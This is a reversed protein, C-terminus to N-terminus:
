ECFGPPAPSDLPHLAIAKYLSGMDDEDTLRRRASELEHRQKGRAVRALAETRSSIGLRELLQGQSVVDTSAVGIAAGQLAGFDVHATLDANGPDALPDAHEHFRVAQFTDGLSRNDGYDVIVAVGGHRAIQLSLKSIMPTASPRLEVIDGCRSDSPLRPLFPDNDAREIRCYQLSGNSYTIATESWHPIGKTFQRIPLADFFENAVLYIPLEPLEDISDIWQPEHGSLCYQQLNRMYPSGELLVLHAVENFKGFNSTARLLDAMLTGRGPGLEVLAFPEPRGQDLWTKLLCLGLLEGFMQSIEPATTFSGRAGIPDPKCYFGDIPDMLCLDMYESLPM